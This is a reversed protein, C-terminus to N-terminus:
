SWRGSSRRRGSTPKQKPNVIKIMLLPLSVKLVLLFWPDGLHLVQDTVLRRVFVFVFLDFVAALLFQRRKDSPALCVCAVGDWIQSAGLLGRCALHHM